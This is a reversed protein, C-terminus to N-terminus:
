RGAALNALDVLDVILRTRRDFVVAYGDVYGRDYYAPTPPLRAIVAPPFPRFRKEWGPPLTGTRYYKKRLGPPLNAPERYYDHLYSEDGPRFYGDRHIHGHEHKGEGRNEEGGGHKKGHKNGDQDGASLPLASGIL